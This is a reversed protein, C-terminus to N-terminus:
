VNRAETEAKLNDLYMSYTEEHAWRRIAPTVQKAWEVGGVLLAAASVIDIYAGRLIFAISKDHDGGNRELDTAAHWNIVANVLTANLYQFNSMYFQDRPLEILLDWFVSNIEDATPKKDQDILDDWVHLARFVLVVFDTARQDGKLFGAILPVHKHLRNLEPTDM